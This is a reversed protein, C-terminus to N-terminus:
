LEVRNLGKRIEGIREEAAKKGEEDKEIITRVVDKEKLGPFLSIPVQFVPGSEPVLIVWDGEVRDVTAYIM